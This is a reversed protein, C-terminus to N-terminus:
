FDTKEDVIVCNVIAFFDFIYTLMYNYNDASIIPYKYIKTLEKNSLWLSMHCTIDYLIHYLNSQVNTVFNVRDVIEMDYTSLDTGWYLNLVHSEHININQVIHAVIKMSSKNQDTFMNAISHVIAAELIPQNNACVGQYEKSFGHYDGCKIYDAIAGSCMNRM